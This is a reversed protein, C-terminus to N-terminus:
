SNICQAAAHEGQDRDAGNGAVINQRSYEHEQHCDTAPQSGAIFPFALLGLTEKGGMASLLSLATRCFAGTRRM